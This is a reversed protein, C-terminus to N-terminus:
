GLFRMDVERRDEQRYKRLLVIREPQDPRWEIYNNEVLSNLVQIIGQSSRGIKISLERLTPSRHYTHYTNQIITLVKREIDSLM